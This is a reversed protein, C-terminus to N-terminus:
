AGDLVELTALEVRQEVELLRSGARLPQFIREASGPIM